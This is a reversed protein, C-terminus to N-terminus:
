LPKVLKKIARLLQVEYPLGVFVVRGNVAITPVTTVAYRDAIDPNEYAEVIHSEVNGNGYVKSVYAFMNTLLAAYPCYPCPPTVVTEIVAKGELSSIERVTESSLGHDNTSIRILTEIFGKIEEGAPMGIYRIAGDALLITPVRSVRYKRAVDISESIDLIEVDIAHRDGIMPSNESLVKVLNMTDECSFCEYKSRSIFLAVHVRSVMDKLADRIAEIDAQTFNFRFMEAIYPPLTYEDM